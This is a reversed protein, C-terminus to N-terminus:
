YNYERYRLLLTSPIGSSCTKLTYKCIMEPGVFRTVLKGFIKGFIKCATSPVDFNLDCVHFRVGHSRCQECHKTQQLSLCNNM